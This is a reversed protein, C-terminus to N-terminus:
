VLGQAQRILTMLEDFRSDDPFATHGLHGRKDEIVPACMFDSAYVTIFGSYNCQIVYTKGDSGDVIAGMLAFTATKVKGTSQRCIRQGRKPHREFWFKMPGRKSGGLPYNEIVAEVRPNSFTIM